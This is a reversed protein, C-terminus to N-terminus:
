VGLKQRVRKPLRMIKAEQEVETADEHQGM